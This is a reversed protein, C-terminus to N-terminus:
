TNECPRAHRWDSIEMRRRSYLCIQENEAYNVNEADGAGSRVVAFVIIRKLFRRSPSAYSLTYLM